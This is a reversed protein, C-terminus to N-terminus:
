PCKPLLNDLCKKWQLYVTLAHIHAATNASPRPKGNSLGRIRRSKARMRRQRLPAKFTGTQGAHWGNRKQIQQAQASTDAVSVTVAAVALASLLIRQM